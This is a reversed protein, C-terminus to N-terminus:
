LRLFLAGTRRFLKYYFDFHVLGILLHDFNLDGRFIKFGQPCLTDVFGVKGGQADLPISGGAVNNTIFDSDQQVGIDNLM